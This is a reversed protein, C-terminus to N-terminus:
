GEGKKFAAVFALAVALIRTKGRSSTHGKTKSNDTKRKARYCRVRYGNGSGVVQVSVDDFQEELRDLMRGTIIHDADPDTGDLRFRPLWEKKPWVWRWYGHASPHDLMDSLIYSPTWADPAESPKPEFIEAVEAALEAIQEPTM